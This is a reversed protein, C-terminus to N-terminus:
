NSLLKKKNNVLLSLYLLVEAVLELLSVINVLRLVTTASKAKITPCYTPPRFALIAAPNSTM